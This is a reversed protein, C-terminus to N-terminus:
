ALEGKVTRYLADAKLEALTYCPGSLHDALDQALGQDFAPHEMNVVVSRIGAGQIADAIQHAETQPALSSMSVNGAGDTLLIMLPMVDPHTYKERVFVEHALLLGASLPTKGGVAIDKLAKQALKVSNTPPLVLTARDKNFVVLGVRDRRQYADTLLSMIAGKTANMREAVAMSWSADVVFLVLNATRRVRIKRQLDSRRLALAMADPDEEHRQRQHPAAARLTADFAIDDAHEGAPQARIYRGRKRDSITRSRRGAQKRTLKDLQTDLRRPSFVAGTEVHQGGEWWKASQDHFVNQPALTPQEPNPSDASEEGEAAVQTKKEAEGAAKPGPEGEGAEQAGEIEAVRESLEQVAVQVEEFPGGKVRHPLALEAAVLIDHRTIASRGEFAANARAAKLIVLDARHGEVNLGATLTAITLLDNSTYEIDEVVERARAIRDSFDQEVPRWQACFEEPAAEFAIHRELIAVRQEADMLGGVDVALAFRDLLQPRLDGEEPNMTGILIFRAPHEFSVGEREVVNVGMAASDLLLDVVHDDLLNVEDVYLIGRNASALVGPDFHREGKQIAKEIDLTGVVRDETASVPLDVMRTRRKKVPLDEVPRNQCLSCTMNPHKPDCSFPCGDVVEIEPLLAALARAATSKATGREGRILVGGIRPNVAALILARRMKEQGVIATFPYIQREGSPTTTIHNTM